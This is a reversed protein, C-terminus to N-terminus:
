GISSKEAYIKIKPGYKCNKQFNQPNSFFESPGSAPGSSYVSQQWLCRNATDKPKM